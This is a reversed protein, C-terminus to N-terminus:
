VDQWCKVKKFLCLHTLVVSPGRSVGSTCHVFVKNNSSVDDVINSIIQSAEFLTNEYNPNQEDLPHHVVEIGNSRYIRMLNQWNIQRDKLEQETQLNLV